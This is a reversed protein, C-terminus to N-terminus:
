KNNLNHAYTKKEFMFMMSQLDSIGIFLTENQIPTIGEISGVGLNYENIPTGNLQCHFLTKSEDSVIWLKNNPEDFTIGSYDDAFSLDNQEVLGNDPNWKLLVGPEKETILYFNHNISNYTIGEIGKNPITSPVEIEFRMIEIGQFSLCIIENTAEDIVWITSDSNRFTIGELDIADVEYQEIIIGEFNFEFIINTPSDSISLLNNTIPNICLGSPEKFPLTISDVLLLTDFSYSPEPPPVPSGENSQNCSYAIFTIFSFFFWIKKM